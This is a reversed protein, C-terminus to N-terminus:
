QIRGFARGFVGEDELQSPREEREKMDDFFPVRNKGKVWIKEVPYTGLLVVARAGEDWTRGRVNYKSEIDRPKFDEGKLGKQGLQTLVLGPNAKGLVVHPVEPSSESSQMRRVLESACIFAILKSMGYYQVDHIYLEHPPIDRKSFAEVPHPDSAEALEAMYIGSTSTWVIRAPNDVGSEIGTRELVPFLLMSLFIPSLHNVQLSCNFPSVSNEDLTLHVYVMDFGDETVTKGVCNVAANQFLRHLPLGSDKYAKAFARVSALSVLDLHWYEVVGAERKAEKVLTEAAARGKSENRCALIVKAAGHSAYYKAIGYGIGQIRLPTTLSRRYHHYSPSLM